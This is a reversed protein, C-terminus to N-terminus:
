SWLYYKKLYMFSSLKSISIKTESKNISSVENINDPVDGMLSSLGRGLGKKNMKFDM